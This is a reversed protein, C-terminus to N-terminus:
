LKVLINVIIQRRNKRMLSLNNGSYLCDTSTIKFLLIFRQTKIKWAIIKDDDTNSRIM